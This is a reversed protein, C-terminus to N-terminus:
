FGRLTPMDHTNLSALSRRPPRDFAAAHALTEIAWQGVWTGLLGHRQLAQNTIAPVVGLNEAVIVAGARHSELTIIAFLEDGPYRVYAGEAPTAGPPIWYLRHLSMVHDLRLLGAHRLHHRLAARFYRHGAARAAAPLLPPFGWGQGGVFFLDPPAGVSAAHAFDDRHRWVDYGDPHTGLALDLGLLRGARRARAALAGLQAEMLWQAVEHYRAAGADIDTAGIPGNRLRAPWVRWNRGHREGAARFRAYDVVDPRAALFAEVDARAAADRDVGQVFTGLADRTAAAAADYDLLGEAAAPVSRRPLVAYLENWMLRSVPSYPSPEAPPDLFSALLPLTLVTDGGHAAVWDLLAELDSLDGPGYNGTRHLAYLPAYVGRHRTRQAPSWALRPASIVLAEASRSAREVELTHYGSPLAATGPTVRAGDELRLSARADPAWAGRPLLGDWAVVVPEVLQAARAADLRRSEHAIWDRGSTDVGLARLVGVLTDASAAVRAGNVGRYWRAVGHRDALAAM